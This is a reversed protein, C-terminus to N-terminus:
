VCGGFEKPTSGGSSGRTRRPSRVNMSFSAEMVESTSDEGSAPMGLGFSFSGLATQRVPEMAAVEEGVESMAALGATDTSSRSARATSKSSSTRLFSLWQGLRRRPLPEAAQKYM